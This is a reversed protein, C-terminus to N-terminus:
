LKDGMSVALIHRTSGEGPIALVLVRVRTVSVDPRAHDGANDRAALFKRTRPVLGICVRQNPTASLRQAGGEAPEKLMRVVWGRDHGEGLPTYARLTLLPTLNVGAAGSWGLWSGRISDNLM